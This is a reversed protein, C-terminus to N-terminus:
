KDNDAPQPNFVHKLIQLAKTMQNEVTKPSIELLEAVEKYTLSEFRCLVFVLRCRDPLQQVAAYVRKAGEHEMTIIPQNDPQHDDMEFVIRKQIRLINLSRNVIARRLYALISINIHDLDPQQWVWLMLEQVADEADQDRQLIRKATLWLVAYWDHYIMSMVAYKDIHWQRRITNDDLADSIM